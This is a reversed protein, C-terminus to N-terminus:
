QLNHLKVNLPICFRFSNQRFTSHKLPNKSIPQFLIITLRCSKPWYKCFLSNQVHTLYTFLVFVYMIFITSKTFSNKIGTFLRSVCFYVDKERLIHKTSFYNLILHKFDFNPMKFYWAIM